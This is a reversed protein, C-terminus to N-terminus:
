PADVTRAAEREAKYKARRNAAYRRRQARLHERDDDTLQGTRLRQSYSTGNVRELRRQPKQPERNPNALIEDVRAYLEPFENRLRVSQDRLAMMLADGLMDREDTGYERALGAPQRLAPM